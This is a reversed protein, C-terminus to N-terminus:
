SRSGTQWEFAQQYTEFYKWPSDRRDRVRVLLKKGKDLGMLWGLYQTDAIYTEGEECEYGHLQILIRAQRETM